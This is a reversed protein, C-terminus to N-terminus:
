AMSMRHFSCGPTNATVLPYDMIYFPGCRGASFETSKDPVSPPNLLCRYTEYSYKGRYMCTGCKRDGGM